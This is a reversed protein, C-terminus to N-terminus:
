PGEGGIVVDTLQVYDEGSSKVVMREKSILDYMGVILPVRNVSMEVPLDLIHPDVIRQGPERASPLAMM